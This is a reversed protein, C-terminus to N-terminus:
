KTYIQPPLPSPVNNPYLYNNPVLARVPMNYYNNPALPARAEAHSAKARAM